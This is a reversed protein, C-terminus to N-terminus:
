TTMKIRQNPYIESPRNLFHAFPRRFNNLRCFDVTLDRVREFMDMGTSASLWSKTCPCDMGDILLGIVNGAFMDAAPLPDGGCM